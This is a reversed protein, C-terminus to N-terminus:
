KGSKEMAERLQELNSRATANDPDIELARILYELAGDLEGRAALIVAMDVLATPWGPREALVGRQVEVAEDLRGLGHLCMAIRDQVEPSEPLERYLDLAEAFRDQKFLARALGETIGPGGYRECLGRLVAEAQDPRGTRILAEARNRQVEYDDPMLAAATDLVAVAEEPRGSNLLLLGYQHLFAPELDGVRRARTFLSEAEIPQTDMILVAHLGLLYVDDPDYELGSQVSSLAREKRGLELEAVALNRHIMVINEAGCFQKAENFETIARGAKGMKMLLVAFNVHNECSTYDALLAREFLPVAEDTRGLGGLARAKQGLLRPYEGYEAATRDILTIAEAFREADLMSVIRRDTASREETWQDKGDGGDRYPGGCSVIVCLVWGLIAGPSARM